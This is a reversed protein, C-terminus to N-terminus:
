RQHLSLKVPKFHFLTPPLEASAQVIRTKLGLANRAAITGCIGSGLVLRSMFMTWTRFM